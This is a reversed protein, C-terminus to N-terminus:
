SSHLFLPQLLAQNRPQPSGALDLHCVGFAATDVEGHLPQALIAHTSAQTGDNSM